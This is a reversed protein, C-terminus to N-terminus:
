GRLLFTMIKAKIRSNKRRKITQDRQAWYVERHLMYLSSSVIISAGIWVKWSPIENWFFFALGASWILATYKFPSLVAVETVAFSRTMFYQASGGLVGITILLVWDFGQPMIWGEFQMAISSVFIGFITFYFSISSGHDTRGLVRVTLMACSMLCAALIPYIANTSLIDAGPQVIILVGSFGLLIAITRHLGIKEGLIPIAMLSTLLPAVFLIAVVEAMPLKIFSTFVCYMALMGIAGRFLHKLPHETKLTSIGGAKWLMLGIPILAFVCRFFLLETIPYSAGTWKILGDMLSFLFTSLTILYIGQLANANLVTSSNSEQIVANSSLDSPPQNPM